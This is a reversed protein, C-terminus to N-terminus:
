NVKEIIYAKGDETDRVIYDGAMDGVLKCIEIGSYLCRKMWENYLDTIMIRLDMTVVINPNFRQLDRIADSVLSKNIDYKQFPAGSLDTIIGAYLKFNEMIMMMYSKIQPTQLIGNCYFKTKKDYYRECDKFMDKAIGLIMYESDKLKKNKEEMRKEELIKKDEM